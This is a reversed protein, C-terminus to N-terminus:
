KLLERLSAIKERRYDPYEEERDILIAEMGAADAAEIDQLSDGVYVMDRSPTLGLERLAFLLPEPSPKGNEYIDSGMLVDVPIPFKWHSLVLSIHKVSNGSVIGLIKGSGRLARLVDETEPFPVNQAITEPEDLSATLAEGFAPYDEKKVGHEELTQFLNQHMYHDCQEDTVPMSVAQFADRWVKRLSRKTDFLTGDFDFLYVSYEKM